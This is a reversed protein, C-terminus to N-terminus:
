KTKALGSTRSKASSLMDIIKKCNAFGEKVMDVGTGGRYYAFLHLNQYVIKLAVMLKGNLPIKKKILIRYEEISDPLDDEKIGKNILYTDIAKLAALYAIGAAERVYKADSYAGYEMPSKRITEKANNLYRYAEGITFEKDKGTHTHIHM